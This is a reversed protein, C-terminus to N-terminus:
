QRYSLNRSPIQNLRKLTLRSEQLVFDFVLLIKASLFNRGWSLLTSGSILRGLYLDCRWLTTPGIGFLCILTFFTNCPWCNLTNTSPFCGFNLWHFRSIDLSPSYRNPLHRKLNVNVDALHQIGLYHIIM